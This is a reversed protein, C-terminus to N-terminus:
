KCPNPKYMNSDQELLYSTELIFVLNSFVQDGAKLCLQEYVM